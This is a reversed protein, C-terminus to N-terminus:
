DAEAITIKKDAVQQAIEDYHRNGVEVPVSIQKGDITAAISNNLDLGDINVYQAETIIM